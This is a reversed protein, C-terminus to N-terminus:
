LVKTQSSEPAIAQFSAFEPVIFYSLYTYMGHIHAWATIMGKGFLPKFQEIRSDDVVRILVEMMDLPLRTDPDIIGHLESIDYRPELAEHVSQPRILQSHAAATTAVWERAKRIADLRASRSDADRIFYQSAFARV